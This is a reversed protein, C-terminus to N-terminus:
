TKPPAGTAPRAGPSITPRPFLTHPPPTRSLVPPAIAHPALGAMPAGGFVIGGASPVLQGTILNFLTTKGAGNPGIIARRERAAVSLSVGNVASLAGFHRTLGELALISETVRAAGRARAARGRHRRPRLARPARLDARPDADLAGHLLLGPEPPPHVGGRGPHRRVAHRHRRHDGDPASRGLHDLSLRQALDLGRVAHLALG